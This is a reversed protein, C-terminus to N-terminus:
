LIGYTQRNYQVFDFNVMVEIGTFKYHGPFDTWASPQTASMGWFFYKYITEEGLQLIKYQDQVEALQLEAHIFNPKNQDFQINKFVSSYSLTSSGFELQNFTVSNM